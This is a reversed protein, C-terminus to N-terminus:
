FFISILRFFIFGLIPYFLPYNSLKFKEGFIGKFVDLSLM